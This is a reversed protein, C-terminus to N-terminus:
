GTFHGTIIMGLLICVGALIGIAISVALITGSVKAIEQENSVKLVHVLAAVFVVFGVAFFAGKVMDNENLLGALKCVGVMLMM